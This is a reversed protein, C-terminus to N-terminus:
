RGGLVMAVYDPEFLISQKRIRGQEIEFMACYPAFFLKNSAPITGAPTQLAQIHRGGNFWNATVVCNGSEAM